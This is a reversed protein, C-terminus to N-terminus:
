SMLLSTCQIGRLFCIIQVSIQFLHTYSMGSISKKSQLMGSGGSFPTSSTNEDIKTRYDSLENFLNVSIHAFMVGATLLISYIWNKIGDRYAAAVGILVLVISLILFPGRIQNFWIGLINSKEETNKM